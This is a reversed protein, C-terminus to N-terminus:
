FKKQLGLRYTRGLPSELYSNYSATVREFSPDRDFVNQVTLQVTTEWPLSVRYTFDSNYSAPLGTSGGTISVNNATCLGITSGVLTGYVGAGAGPIVTNPGSQISPAAACGVASGDVVNTGVNPINANTTALAASTLTTAIDTDIASTYQTRWNFNHRGRTYNFGLGARHEFILRPNGAAAALKASSLNYNGTADYGEAFTEGNYVFDSFDYNLVKTGDLTAVLRGGLLEDFTLAAQIDVGNTELKGGQINRPNGFFRVTAPTIGPGTAFAEALTPTLDASCEAFTDYNSNLTVLPLGDIQTFAGQGPAPVPLAQLVTSSCDILAGANQPQNDQVLASLVNAATM